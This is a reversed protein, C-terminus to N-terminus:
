AGKPFESTRARSNEETLNGVCTMVYGPERLPRTKYGDGDHLVFSCSHFIRQADHSTRMKKVRSFHFGNNRTQFYMRINRFLNSSNAVAQSKYM